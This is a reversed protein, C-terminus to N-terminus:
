NPIYALSFRLAAAQLRTDRTWLLTDPTLKSSVLLHADIYGIGLGYLTHTDVFSMVEHHRAITASSFSQISHLLSARNALNGMALEGLVFPHWLIQRRTLLRTVDPNSSRLHDIWISTDLLVM